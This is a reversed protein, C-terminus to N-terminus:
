SENGELWVHISHIAEANVTKPTLRDAGVTLFTYTDTGSQVIAWAQGGSAPSTVAKSYALANGNADDLRFGLRAGACGSDVGKLTVREVGQVESNNDNYQYSDVVIGTADCVLSSDTGVQITSGNLNLGAASGFVGAVLAGLVVFM